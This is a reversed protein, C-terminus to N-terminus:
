LRSDAAQSTSQVCSNNPLQSPANAVDSSDVICSWAADEVIWVSTANIPLPQDLTYTTSTNDM